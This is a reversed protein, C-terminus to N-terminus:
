YLTRRPVYQEIDETPNDGFFMNYVELARKVKEKGGDLFSDSCDFTEMRSTEKEIVYFEMPLGFLQNYLWAQADYNYTKASRPFDDIRGSTKIDIIKDACIIDAKGKWMVGFVEKIAPVEFQNGDTYIESCFEFNKKANDVMKNIEDAEKQLLLIDAGLEMCAEKYVKTARTSSDIIVYDAIKEPELMAHHFYSGKLLNSNKELPKRFDRPNKLLTGINSYSLFQQGFKGYYNTDDKLKDVIAQTM